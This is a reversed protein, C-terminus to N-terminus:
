GMQAKFHGVGQSVGQNCTQSSGGGLTVWNLIGLNMVRLFQSIIFTRKLAQHLINNLLLVFATYIAWSYNDTGYSVSM